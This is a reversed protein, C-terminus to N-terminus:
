IHVNVVVVACGLLGAFHCPELGTNWIHRTKFGILHFVTRFKTSGAVLITRTHVYCKM